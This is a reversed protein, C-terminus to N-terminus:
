PSRRIQGPDLTMLVRPAEFILPAVGQQTEESAIRLTVYKRARSSLDVSLPQSTDRPIFAREDLVASASEETVSVRAGRGLQTDGPAARVRTLFRASKLNSPLDVRWTVAAGPALLLDLRHFDNLDGPTRDDHSLFASLNQTEVNVRGLLVDGQLLYTRQPGFVSLHHRELPQALLALTGRGVPRWQFVVEECLVPANRGERLCSAALPSRSPLYFSKDEWTAQTRLALLSTIVALPAGLRSIKMALALLGCWFFMMPSLYWPAVGDRFLAIQLAVLLSWALLVAQPLGRRIDRLFMLVTALLALTALAGIIQASRMRGLNASVDNSLPRGVLELFVRPFTSLQLHGSDKWVAPHILLFWVYQAIGLAAAAVLIAWAALRRIRLAALAIFFVPWTMVGGGWSWSALIGGAGLWVALSVPRDSRKAVAFAGAAVGLQSLGMQLSSEGFTFSTVKTTSFLLLSFVPLLLWRIRAPLVATILTVTAGAILLGLALEVRANWAFFRASFYYIPTLALTSHSGGIWSERLYQGLTCTGDLMSAVLSVRGVYDDSLNNEGNTFVIWAMRAPPLLALLLSLVRGAASPPKQGETM